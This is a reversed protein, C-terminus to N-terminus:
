RFENVVHLSANGAGGDTGSADSPDSDDRDALGLAWERVQQAASVADLGYMALIEGRSAHPPFVDPFALQRVPM